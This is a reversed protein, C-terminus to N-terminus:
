KDKKKKDTLKKPEEKLEIVETKAINENDISSINQVNKVEEKRAKISYIALTLEASALVVIAVGLIIYIVNKAVDEMYLLSLVGLCLAILAIVFNLIIWKVNEKTTIQVIGKMTEGAGIAILFYTVFYPIVSYIEKFSFGFAVAIAVLLSAFLIDVSFKTKKNLAAGIYLLLADGSLFIVLIILIVDKYKDPDIGGFIAVLLGLLALLSGEILKLWANRKFM